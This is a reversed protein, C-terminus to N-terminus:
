IIRGAGSRFCAPHSCAGAATCCRCQLTDSVANLPPKHVMCLCTMRLVVAYSRGVESAQWRGQRLGRLCPCATLKDNASQVTRAHLVCGVGPMVGDLANGSVNLLRLNAPLTPLAGALQNNSIDQM